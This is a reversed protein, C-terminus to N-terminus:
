VACDGKDMIQRGIWGMVLGVVFGIENENLARGKEIRHWKKLCGRCCTATAHQAVFVPHNKMPTQKGDNKPFAPALRTTIFDVAHSRITEMGKDQIYQRDKDTLKFRSRFKSKKLAATAIAIRDIM